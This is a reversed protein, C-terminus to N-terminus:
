VDGGRVLHARAVAVARCLPEGAAMEAVRAAIAALQAAARVGDPDAAAPPFLERFFPDALAEGALLKVVDFGTLQRIGFTVHLSRGEPTRAGHFQGRPVYVVDGPGVTFCLAPRRAAEDMRGRLAAAVAPEMEAADLPRDVRVESVTWEKRGECQVALVEHTDFHVGFPTGAAGTAYVNPWVRAGFAEALAAAVADVAPWLGRARNWVLPHGEDLYARLRGADGLLAALDPAGAHEPFAELGEPPERQRALADFLADHTLPAAVGAHLHVPAKEYYREFFVGPDLPAVIAALCDLAHM